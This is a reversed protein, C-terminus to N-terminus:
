SALATRSGPRERWFRAGPEDSLALSDFGFELSAELEDLSSPSMWCVYAWVARGYWNATLQVQTTLISGARDIDQGSQFATAHLLAWPRGDLISSCMQYEFEAGLMAARETAEPVSVDGGLDAALAAVEQRRARNLELTDTFSGPCRRQSLLSTLFQCEAELDAAQLALSRLARERRSISEDLLWCVLSASNLVTRAVSWTGYEPTPPELGRALAILSHGASVLSQQAFLRGFHLATAEAATADRLDRAGPSDPQPEAGLSDVHAGLESRLLPLADLLEGPSRPGGRLRPSTAHEYGCMLCALKEGDFLLRAACRPCDLREDEDHERVKSPQEVTPSANRVERVAARVM